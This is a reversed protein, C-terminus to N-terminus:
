EGAVTDCTFSTAQLNVRFEKNALRTSQDVKSNAIALSAQLKATVTQKDGLGTFKFTVHVTKGDAGAAKLAKLTFGDATYDGTYGDQGSAVSYESVIVNEDAGSLKLVAGDNDDTNAGENETGDHWDINGKGAGDQASADTDDYTVKYVAKCEYKIDADGGTLTATGVDLKQEVDITATGSKNAYFTHTQNASAMDAATLKMTLDENGQLAVSGVNTGETSGTVTTKSTNTSDGTSIAFYAFTAGVVAVLLTAVAIVTLLMTNKKDM